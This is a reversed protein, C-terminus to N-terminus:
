CGKGSGGLTCAAGNSELVEHGLSELYAEWHVTVEGNDLVSTPLGIDGNEHCWDLLHEDRLALFEKLNKLNELVDIFQYEINYYDFNRKLALCDPCMQSGYVKIM